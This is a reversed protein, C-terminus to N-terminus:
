VDAMYVFSLSTQFYYCVKLRYPSYCEGNPVACDVDIALRICFFFADVCCVTYPMGGVHELAVEFLFVLMVSPAAISNAVVFGRIPHVDIVEHAVEYCEHSLM